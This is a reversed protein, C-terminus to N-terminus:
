FAKIREGRLTYRVKCPLEEFAGAPALASACESGPEASITLTHEGELAAAEEGEPEEGEPEEGEPEGADAQQPDDLRVSGGLVESQLLRCRRPGADVDGVAVISSYEFHFEPATYKGRLPTQGPVRWYGLSGESRLQASYPKNDLRYVAREGCSNEELKMRIRYTGVVEGPLEGCGTLAYICLLCATSHLERM